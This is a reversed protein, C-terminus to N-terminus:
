QLKLDEEPIIEDDSGKIVENDIPEAKNGGDQQLEQDEAPIIEDDSSLDPKSASGLVNGSSAKKEKKPSKTSKPKKKKAKSGASMSSSSAPKKVKIEDDSDKVVQKNIPEAKNGGDQQLKLDGEPIIEDDSGKIVENNIPEAKNGGDQQLEQDEAPIIADDSSLDPEIVGGL